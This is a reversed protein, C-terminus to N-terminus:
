PWKVVRLVSLTVNLDMKTSKAWRSYCNSAIRIGEARWPNGNVILEILIM